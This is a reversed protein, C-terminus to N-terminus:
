ISHHYGTKINFLGQIAAPIIDLMIPQGIYSTYTIIAHHTIVAGHHDRYKCQLEYAITGHTVMFHTLYINGSIKHLDLEMTVLSEM